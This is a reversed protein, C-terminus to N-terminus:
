KNRDELSKIYKALEEKRQSYFQDIAAVQIYKDYCNKLEPLLGRIAYAIGRYYYLGIHNPNVAELREIYLLASDANRAFLHQRALGELIIQDDSELNYARRLYIIASDNEKMSAHMIGRRLYYMANYKQLQIAKDSEELARTDDMTHYAIM